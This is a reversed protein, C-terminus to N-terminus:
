YTYATDASVLSDTVLDALPHKTPRLRFALNWKENDYVGAYTDDSFLDAIVNGSGSTVLAFKVNRKDNDPKIAVINFNITDDDAYDLSTNNAPVAHMGM